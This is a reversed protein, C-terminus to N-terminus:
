PQSKLERVRLDRWRVEYPGEGEKIGHVQLGLFGSLSSDPDRIDAIPVDNVWTQLRTGRARVTYRNWQGNRFADLVPHEKTIWNRGTGESYLYGSEGPANEIEVQPGHVRGSKYDPKSQSRIQVGSNLGEDVKVEFTLEFDGFNKETCLFSNPSGIATKGVIVGDQVRFTATGNKQTWGTLDTSNFLPTWGAATIDPIKEDGPVDTQADADATDDDSPESSSAPAAPDRVAPTESTLMSESVPGQTVTGTAAWEAGRALSVQFALGQMATVDHGLTTHFCRGGGYQITMLIPEHNGSGGTSTDSQATALVHMNEAPGRLLAYLEDETQMWSSPLGATIPHQSDRVVIMFPTRKGHSGGRGPETNRVFTKKDDNWRVYPGSKENRGGWGGLGIMRNYARWNSFANDAAHVCVFGGGEAVFQEFAAQTEESWPEGNYNSVVLDYDAFNPAFSNMDGGKGPTTAVDVQFLGTGVLTQQILPTTTQWKHNNQGDIILTKIPTKETEAGLVSGAFPSILLTLFFVFPFSLHTTSVRNM